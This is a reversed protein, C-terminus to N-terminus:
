RELRKGFILFLALPIVLLLLTLTRTQLLAPYMILMLLLGGIAGGLHASHGINGLQRKMGFVTYALYAVGVIYAPIGIPIFMIYIKETPFLLIFSFLVGMVAGSAGVASYYHNDKHYFYTLVNGAVMSTFYIILFSISGISAILIDAFFYLTLMNFLLHNFDVHLFGSSLIRIYDGNTIPGIQFKYKEFFDRNNFGNISFLVNIIIIVLTIKNM